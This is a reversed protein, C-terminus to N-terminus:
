RIRSSGDHIIRALGGSAQSLREFLPMMDPLRHWGLMWLWEVHDADVGNVGRTDQLNRHSADNFVGGHEIVLGM